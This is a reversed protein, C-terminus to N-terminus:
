LGSPLITAWPVSKQLSEAAPTAPVFPKMLDPMVQQTFKDGVRDLFSDQAGQEWFPLGGVNSAPHATANPTIGVSKLVDYFAAVGYNALISAEDPKAAYLKSEKLPDHTGARILVWTDMFQALRGYLYRQVDRLIMGKSTEDTDQRATTILKGAWALTKLVAPKGGDPAQIEPASYAQTLYYNVAEVVKGIHQPSVDDQDWPKHPVDQATIARGELATWTLPGVGGSGQDPGLKDEQFAIVAAETTQDFTGTRPVSLLQQLFLVAKGTDGVDLMPRSGVSGIGDVQTRQVASTTSTASTRQCPVFAVRTPWAAPTGGQRVPQGAIHNAQQIM